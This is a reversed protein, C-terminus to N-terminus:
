KGRLKHGSANRLTKGVSKGANRGGFKDSLPKSSPKRGSAGRLTEGISKGANRGGFKTSNGKGAM